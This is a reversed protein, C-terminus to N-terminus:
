ICAMRGVPQSDLNLCRHSACTVRLLDPVETVKVPTHRGELVEFIRGAVIVTAPQNAKAINSTKM